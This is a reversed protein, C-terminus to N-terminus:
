EPLAHLAYMALLLNGPAGLKGFWRGYIQMIEGSRYLNSLVRNVALRFPADGRRMMFGYPEYSLYHEAIAFQAPDKATVALGILIVRDSAYADAGGSELAALGERHDKVPVIQANVFAKQLAARVAADTTTGPIVAIKKGGLDQFSALKETGKVLLSGGDVFTMHSFDVQEQRSLSNTTSGCELDITGNVVSAIRTEPTVAVWKVDLKQLKLQQQIGTVIRQCLDISYGSPKGDNGRFSFPVSQERYGITITGSDKIKKLTGQLDQAPASGPLSLALAVTALIRTLASM